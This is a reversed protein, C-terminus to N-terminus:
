DNDMLNHLNKLYGQMVKKQMNGVLLGMLRLSQVAVQWQSHVELVVVGDDMWRLTYQEKLRLAQEEVSVITMTWVRPHETVQAVRCGQLVTVPGFRHEMIVSRGINPPGDSHIFLSPLKHTRWSFFGSQARLFCAEGSGLVLRSRRATTRSTPPEIPLDVIGQMAHDVTEQNVKGVYFHVEAFSESPDEDTEIASAKLPATATPSVPESSPQRAQASAEAFAQADFHAQTLQAAQESDSPDIEPAVAEPIRPTVSLSTKATTTSTAATPTTTTHPMPTSGIDAPADVVERAAPMIPSHRGYRMNELDQIDDKAVSLSDTSPEASLQAAPSDSFGQYSFEPSVADSTVPEAPPVETDQSHQSYPASKPLRDIEVLQTLASTGDTADLDDIDVDEWEQVEDWELLHSANAKLDAWTAESLDIPLSKKKENMNSYAQASELAKKPDHVTGGNQNNKDSIECHEPALQFFGTNGAQSGVASLRTPMNTSISACLLLDLTEPNALGGVSQSQLSGRLGLLRVAQSDAAQRQQSPHIGTSLMSMSLLDRSALGVFRSGSWSSGNGLYKPQELQSALAQTISIRSRAYDIRPM